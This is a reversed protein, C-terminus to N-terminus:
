NPRVKIEEFLNLRYRAVYPAGFIEMFDSRSLSHKIKKLLLPQGPLLYGVHSFCCNKDFRSNFNALM